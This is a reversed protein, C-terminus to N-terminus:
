INVFRRMKVNLVLSVALFNTLLSSGGYSLLPLPIGVIPFLGVVMAVNVLVQFSFMLGVMFIIYVGTRDRSKAASSFLRAILLFYLSLIAAAGLFGFEEGVVSFVFDTHRAPLFRLQSQTGKKYGKGLFGGSGIAIRSQLIQYGAGRPDKGPFVVTTLRKKQYDKLYFNWGALGILISLIFIWVLARRRLGALTLAGLLLPLFSVATGLDPQLAVLIFLVATLGSSAWVASLSVYNRKYESFMQALVLIIAIKALESPQVQFYKFKIWSEKATFQNFLLMGILVLGMFGYFYFSYTVLVKYDVALFIFLVALGVGMFLLQRMFYKGPLYHSSSYIILVGLLSISVLLIILFWDINELHRRDIM